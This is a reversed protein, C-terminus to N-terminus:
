KVEVPAPLLNDQNGSRGSAGPALRPRPPPLVVPDHARVRFATLRQNAQVIKRRSNDGLSASLEQDARMLQEKVLKREEETGQETGIEEMVKLLARVMPSKAVGSTSAAGQTKPSQAPTVPSDLPDDLPDVAKNPQTQAFLRERSLAFFGLSVLIAVVCFALRTFAQTWRNTM